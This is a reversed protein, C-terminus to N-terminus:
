PRRRTGRARTTGSPSSELTTWPPVRFWGAIFGACARTKSARHSGSPTVLYLAGEDVIRWRPLVRVLRGDALARAVLWDAALFVGLGAIVMDTLVEAEDSAVRARVPVVANEGRESRLHWRAGTLSGSFVLCEHRVLDDPHALRPAKELYAPSACLFRLRPALRRATLRSDTLEGLRIALDFGEGVLDM